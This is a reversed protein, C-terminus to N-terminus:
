KINVTANKSHEAVLQSLYIFELILPDECKITVNRAVFLEHVVPTGLTGKHYNEIPPWPGKPIKMSLDKWRRWTEIKLGM